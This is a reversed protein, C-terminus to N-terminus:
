IVVLLWNTKIINVAFVFHVCINKYCTLYKTKGKDEFTPSDILSYIEEQM